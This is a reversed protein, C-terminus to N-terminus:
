RHAEVRLSSQAVAAARVRISPAPVSLPVDRRSLLPRNERPFKECRMSYMKWHRAIARIMEAISINSWEAAM